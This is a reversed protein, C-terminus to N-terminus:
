KLSIKDTFFMTFIVVSAFSACLYYPALNEASTDPNEETPTEETPEEVPEEPEEVPEEPEEPEEEGRGSVGVVIKSNNLYYVSRVLDKNKTLLVTGSTLESFEELESIETEVLFTSGDALITEFDSFTPVDTEEKGEEQLYCIPSPTRSNKSIFTGSIIEIEHTARASFFISCGGNSTYTGGDITLKSGNAYFVSLFPSTFALDLNKLILNYGPRTNVVITGEYTNTEPFRTCDIHGPNDEPLNVGEMYNFYCLDRITEVVYDTYGEEKSATETKNETEAEADSLGLETTTEADLSDTEAEAYVNAPLVLVPSLILFFTQLHKLM